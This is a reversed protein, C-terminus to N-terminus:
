GGPLDGIRIGDLNGAYRPILLLARPRAAALRVSGKRGSARAYGGLGPNDVRRQGDRSVRVSGDGHSAAAESRPREVQAVEGAVAGGCRRRGREDRRLQDKARQRGLLQTDAAPAHSDELRTRVEGGPGEIRGGCFGM